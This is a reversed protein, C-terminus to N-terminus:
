IVQHMISINNNAPPFYTFRKLMSCYIKIGEFNVTCNEIYLEKLMPFKKWNISLENSVYNNVYLKETITADRPNIETNIKCNFFYVKKVWTPMWLFPNTMHYFTCVNISKYHRVFRDIFIGIDNNGNNDFSIHKSFGLKNTSEYVKKCTLAFNYSSKSDCFRFIVSLVDGDLNM